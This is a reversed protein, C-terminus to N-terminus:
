DKGFIRWFLLGVGAGGLHAFAAVHTFGAVQEYAGVAQLVIWLILATRARIRLPWFLLTRIPSAEKRLWAFGVARGGCASCSWTPEGDVRSCVLKTSHCNSCAFM